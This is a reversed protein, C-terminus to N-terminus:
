FQKPLGSHLRMSRARETLSRNMREAIGNQQPTGPVIRSLKIGSLYCFRKFESDEYEGGNDSNLKKIKLGTENEVRVKWRRNVLSFSSRLCRHASTRVELKGKLHLCKLGQSSMHRFMQHWLNPDDKGEVMAISGYGDTTIYFSGNKNGRTITMIGKSIKWKDDTFTTVYGKSALQGISILNKRLDSIHRVNNLKWVSGKLQINVNRKGTINCAQNDGLYVKGLNRSVYNEFLEWHPTAHFSAGSDLVWSETKSELSCILYDDSEGLVYNASGNGKDKKESKKLSLRIAGLTKRDLLKLDEEDMNKLKRKKLWDVNTMGELKEKLPWHLDKQYLYDEMQIKWFSFNTGDFKEIKLSDKESGM